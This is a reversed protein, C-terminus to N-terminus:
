NVHLRDALAQCPCAPMELVQEMPFDISLHTLM